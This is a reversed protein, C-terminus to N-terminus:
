RSGRVLLPGDRQPIIVVTAPRAAVDSGPTLGHDDAATSAVPDEDALHEHFSPPLFRRSSPLASTPGSDPQLVAPSPPEVSAILAGHM